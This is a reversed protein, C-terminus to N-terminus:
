GPLADGIGRWVTVNGAVRGYFVGCLFENPDEPMGTRSRPLIGLRAFGRRASGEILHHWFTWELPTQVGQIAEGFNSTSWRTRPASVLHVVDATLDDAM